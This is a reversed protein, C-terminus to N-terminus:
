TATGDAGKAGQHGGSGGAGGLGATANAVVPASANGGGGGGNVGTGSSDGGAGGAGGQGWLGAAGGSGGAQGTTGSGGNGGNGWLIGGAGGVAGSGAVGNAGNGILPRGLLAQAPANVAGMVNQEAAALPSANAAEASAYMGAGSNLAALGSMFCPRRRVPRRFTGVMPALCRLFRQRCRMQAAAVQTTLSAAAVNASRVAWGIGALDSSASALVEPTVIVFSPM